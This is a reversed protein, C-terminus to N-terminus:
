EATTHLPITGNTYIVVTLYGLRHALKVVDEVGYQGDRWLFPEGGELYLCRGGQAYFSETAQAVQAFGLRQGGRTSVRCHRCRLNCQNTLVLGCILPPHRGGLHYRLVYQIGFLMAKM